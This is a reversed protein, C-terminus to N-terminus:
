RAASGSSTLQLDLATRAAFLVQLASSGCTFTRTAVDMTNCGELSSAPDLLQAQEMSDDMEESTHLGMIGRAIHRYDIQLVHYVMHTDDHPRGACTVSVFGLKNDCLVELLQITIYLPVCRSHCSIQLCVVHNWCPLLSCWLAWPHCTCPCAASLHMHWLSFHWCHGLSFRYWWLFLSKKASV